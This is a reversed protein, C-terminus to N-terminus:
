EPVYHTGCRKAASRVLWAASPIWLACLQRTVLLLGERVDLLRQTLGTASATPTWLFHAASAVGATCSEMVLTQGTTLQLSDGTSLFHDGAHVRSDLSADDFTVWLRGQAVRLAGPQVVRLTIARGAELTWNGSLGSLGCFSSTTNALDMIHKSFLRQTISLLDIMGSPPKGTWHFRAVSNM